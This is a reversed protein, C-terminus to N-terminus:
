LIVASLCLSICTGLLISDLLHIEVLLLLACGLLCFFFSNSGQQWGAVKLKHRISYCFHVCSFILIIRNEPWMEVDKYYLWFNGDLRSSLCNPHHNNTHTHTPPHAKIKSWLAGNDMKMYSRHGKHIRNFSEFVTFNSGDELKIINTQLHNNEQWSVFHVSGKMVCM